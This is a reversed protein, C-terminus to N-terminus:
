GTANVATETVHISAYRTLTGSSCFLSYSSFTAQGAAEMWEILLSTQSPQVTVNRPPIPRAACEIINYSCYNFASADMGHVLLISSKELVTSALRTEM